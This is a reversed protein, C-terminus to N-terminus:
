ADTPDGALEPVAAVLRRIGEDLDAETPVGIFTLRLHSGTEEAPFFARGPMVIVGRKQAAMAVEVDDLNEPIAVWLHTGGHPRPSVLRCAPMQHAIAAALAQSRQNLSRALDRLHRNWANGSVLELAAEQIPRSVFMDDVVRISRLRDAVPGRAILAGIRLNPSTVKTLSTIYVVRGETDDALLPSPTRREFSLWRAFDDEIVFAGAASAAELVASRRSPSLIAGTPNQYTPQLYVAQAGTRAFADVLLEPIIGEGDTPVPVYRIGAARAVAIAGQYTPSEILLPSGAPVLARFAASIAGQGGPTIIVDHADIGPAASAAFWARLSRLGAAPPRSWVEPLRAAHAFAAGLARTPQLSAHLYGSGLTLVGEEAADPLQGLGGTDISRDALAVTQWSHDVVAAPSAVASVYTGSGPRSELVGEQALLAIARSVTIPSVRHRAVLERSSPLRDGADLEGVERRLLAVLM